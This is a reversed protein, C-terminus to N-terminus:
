VYPLIMTFWSHRNNNDVTTNGQMGQPRTNRWFSTPFSGVAAHYNHMAVGLQKMNNTCQSRRAADRASQVAPLLWSILVGIIAIVVLLEILTFGLRQRPAESSSQRARLLNM